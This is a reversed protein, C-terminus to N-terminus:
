GGLPLYSSDQNGDGDRKFATNNIKTKKQKRDQSIQILM